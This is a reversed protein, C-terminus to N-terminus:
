ESKEPEPKKPKDAEIAANIKDIVFSRMQFLVDHCEGLPADSPLIFTYIREEKKVEFVAAQKLM